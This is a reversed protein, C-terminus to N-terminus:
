YSMCNRYEDRAAQIASYGTFALAAYGLGQFIKSAISMPLGTKARITWSLASSGAAVEPGIHTAVEAVSGAVATPSYNHGLAVHGFPVIVELAAMNSQDRCFDAKGGPVNRVIANRTAVVDSPDSRWEPIGSLDAWHGMTGGCIIGPSCNPSADHGEQWEQWQGTQGTRILTCNGTPCIRAVEGAGIGLLMQAVASSVQVGNVYYTGVCRDGSEICIASFVDTRFLGLQDVAGTPMNEVYAYRNWSQPDAPDVAGLGAPDPSVWRGQVPSYERFAFDYLGSVTDQVQGTFNLDTTGSGAYNEGFPAYAGDYYM